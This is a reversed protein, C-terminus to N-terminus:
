SRDGSNVWEGSSDTLVTKALSLVQSLFTFLSRTNLDMGESAIITTNQHDPHPLKDAIAPLQEILRSQLYAPSLDNNITHRRHELNLDLESTAIQHQHQLQKLQLEQTLAAQQQQALLAEFQIQQQIKTMEAGLRRQELALEQLALELQSENEIQVTANHATIAQQQAEQERQERRIRETTERDYQARDQTSRLQALQEAVNLNATESNLKHQREREGVEQANELAALRAMKQREARFPAQLNEWLQTSSVIAEKIQVTVIKLGLGSTNNGEERSGEAVTRLRYTLEEIIPQKDSLIDDISLTAVKDKIAAEAQERLQLNVIGMPDDPDSFDLKWYATALDEIIWQVYAQVLIGQREQCICKANILLTQVASPIVLFSDKLPNFRFSIGRGMHIPQSHGRRTHVVYANPPVIVSKWLGFGVIRYDIMKPHEVKPAPPLPAASRAMTPAQPAEMAMFNATEALRSDEVAPAFERRSTTAPKPSPAPSPQTGHHRKRSRSKLKQDVAAQEALAEQLYTNDTKNDMDPACIPRNILYISLLDLNFLPAIAGRKSQYFSCIIKNVL